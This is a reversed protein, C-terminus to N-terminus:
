WLFGSKKETNLKDFIFNIKGMMSDLKMEFELQKKFLLEIQQTPSVSRIENFQRQTKKNMEYKETFVSYDLLDKFIGNKHTNIFENLDIAILDIDDMEDFNIEKSYYQKGYYDNINLMGKGIPTNKDINNIKLTINADINTFIGSGDYNENEIEGCYMINEDSEDYYVIADGNASYRNSEEDLIFEGTMRINGSEYYLVGTVKNINNLEIKLSNYASKSNDDFKIFFEELNYRLSISMTENNFVYNIKVRKNKIEGIDMKKEFTDEEVVFNLIIEEDTLDIEGNNILENCEKVTRGISVIYKSM